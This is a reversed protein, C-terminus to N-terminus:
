DLRLDRGVSQPFPEADLMSRARDHAGRIIKRRLARSGLLAEIADVLAAADRGGAIMATSTDAVDEDTHPSTIIPLGLLMAQLTFPRAKFAYESLLFGHYNESPVNRLGGTFEGHDEVHETSVSSTVNEKPTGVERHVHLRM